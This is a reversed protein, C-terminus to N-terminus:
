VRDFHNCSNNKQTKEPTDVGVNNKKKKASPFVQNNQTPM